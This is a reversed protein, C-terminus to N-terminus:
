VNTCILVLVYLDQLIRVAQWEKWGVTARQDLPDATGGSGFSKIISKANGGNVDIMGYAEKAIIPCYYNSGSTYGQTSTLWRVRNTKGFESADVTKQAAYGSVPVFDSVLELDNELDTDAMGWFAAGVPLTGQGTGAPILATMYDADNGRLTAAATDIDTKNLLTPTGDGNSCTISSASACLYDRCLVDNTNNMQDNQRDVAVTIVPDEVTLDVVDTVTVFDGYQEVTALIDVKALKSGTPTVGETIPTTAAPLRSYRRMKIQNGSKKSISMKQAFKGYIYKPTPPQLLTREYTVAVAPDIDTTTTLPNGM